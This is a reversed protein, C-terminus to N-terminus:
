RYGSMLVLTRGRAWALADATIAVRDAGRRALVTAAQRDLDALVVRSGTAILAVRGAAACDHVRGTVPLSWADWDVVDDAEGPPSRVAVEPAIGSCAANPADPAACAAAAGGSRVHGGAAIRPQGGECFHLAGDVFRLHQPPAGLHLVVRDAPRERARADGPGSGSVALLAALIGLAPASAARVRSM